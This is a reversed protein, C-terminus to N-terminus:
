SGGDDDLSRGPISSGHISERSSIAETTNVPSASGDGVFPTFSTSTKSPDVVKHPGVPPSGVTSNAIGVIEQAAAVNVNPGLGSDVITSGPSGQASEGGPSMGLNKVDPANSYDRSVNSGFHHEYKSNSGGLVKSVYFSRYASRDLTIEEGNITTKPAESLFQPGKPFALKLLSTDSTSLSTSSDDSSPGGPSKETPVVQLIGQNSGM